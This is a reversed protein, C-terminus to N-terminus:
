EASIQAACLTDGQVALHHWGPAKTQWSKGGCILPQRSPMFVGKFSYKHEYAQSLLSFVAPTNSLADSSSVLPPQPSQQGLLGSSDETEQDEQRPPKAYTGKAEVERGGM